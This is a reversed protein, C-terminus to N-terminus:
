PAKLCVTRRDGHSPCPELRPLSPANQHKWSERLGGTFDPMRSGAEHRFLAHSGTEGGM